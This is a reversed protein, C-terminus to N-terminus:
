PADYDSMLQFLQYVDDRAPNDGALILAKNFSDPDQAQLFTLAYEREDEDMDGWLMEQGPVNSVFPNFKGITKSPMKLFMKEIIEEQEAYTPDRGEAERFLNIRKDHENEYVGEKYRRIEADESAYNINLYNGIIRRGVAEPMSEMGKFDSPTVASWVKDDSESLLASNENYLRSVEAPDGHGNDYALNLARRLEPPTIVDKRARQKEDLAYLNQLQAATVTNEIMRMDEDSIDALTSTGAAIPAAFVEHIERAEDAKANNFMQREATYRREAEVRVDLDEIQSIEELVETQSLDRAKLSDVFRIGENKDTERKASREMNIRVDTPIKQAWPEKLADLRDEPEMTDLKAIVLDDQARKLLDQGEEPTFYNNEVGAEIIAATRDIAEVVSGNIGAERLDAVQQDIFARQQGTETTKAISQIRTFGQAGQVQADM